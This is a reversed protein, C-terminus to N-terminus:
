EHRFRKYITAPKASPSNNRDAFFAKKTRSTVCSVRYKRLKHENELPKLQPDSVTKVINVQPGTVDTVTIYFGPRWRASLVAMAERARKRRAM